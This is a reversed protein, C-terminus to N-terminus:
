MTIRDPKVVFFIFFKEGHEFMGAQSIFCLKDMCTNETSFKFYNYNIFFGLFVIGAKSRKIILEPGYAVVIVLTYFCNMRNVSFFFRQCKKISQSFFGAIQFHKAFLDYVKCSLKFLFIQIVLIKRWSLLFLM